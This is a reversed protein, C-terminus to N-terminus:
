MWKKNQSNKISLLVYNSARIIRINQKQKTKTKHIKLQTWKEKITDIAQQYDDFVSELGWYVRRRKKNTNQKDLQEDIEMAIQKSNSFPTVADENDSFLEQDSELDIM